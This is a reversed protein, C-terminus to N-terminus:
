SHIPFYHGQSEELKLFHIFFTLSNNKWVKENVEKSFSLDTRNKNNNFTETIIGYTKIIDHICELTFGHEINAQSELVKKSSVPVM